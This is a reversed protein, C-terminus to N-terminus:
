LGAAGPVFVEFGHRVALDAIPELKDLNINEGLSCTTFREEFTLIMTEAMSACVMDKPLGVNIASHPTLPLKVIGGEVVSIDPRHNNKGSIHRTLCIDLVLVNAKVGDMNFSPERGINAAIIIDAEKVAKDVDEEIQVEVNNLQLIDQRLTELKDNHKANLIVKAFSAALKRACLSGISSTAATVTLTSKKLDINKVKAMRHLAEIVSWATFSTGSTVPTKLHKHLMPKKDAIVAAYGGLGLLDAGLDRALYSATIIKDLVLEEDFEGAHEPLLPSVIFYGQIEKDQASKFSKLHTIKFGQNKLFAKIFFDPMLRTIPWFERIHKLDIPNFLFAFTRM